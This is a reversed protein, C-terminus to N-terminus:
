GQIQGMIGLRKGVALFPDLFPQAVIGRSSFLDRALPHLEVFKKAFPCMGPGTGAFNGKRLYQWGKKVGDLVAQAEERAAGAAATAVRAALTDIVLGHQEALGSQVDM